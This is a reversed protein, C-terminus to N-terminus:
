NIIQDWNMWADQIRCSLNSEKSIGSVKELTVPLGDKKIMENLLLSQKDNPDSYKLVAVISRILYSNDLNFKEAYLTPAVLREASSLKRIPDRIIRDVRDKLGALSGRQKLDEKYEEINERDFKHKHIVVEGLENLTNITQNGVIVDALAEHIYVWKRHFAFYGATAHGGNHVYLKRELRAQQNDVLTMPTLGAPKEGVFAYRDVTWENYDETVLLLPNSEPQPVVRSIMCDPFGVMKNMFLMDEPNELNDRVYKGLNRSSDAMNECAVFNISETRGSIRSWTIGKAITKAVDPLNQDFVSTLVICASSIEEAIRDRDEFYYSTFGNVTFEQIDKGFVKVLYKKESNLRDVLDKNKDVFIIEFGSLWALLGIHAKGTAGAGFLVIKNGM